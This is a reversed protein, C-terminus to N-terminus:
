KRGRTVNDINVKRRYGVKVIDELQLKFENNNERNMHWLMRSIMNSDENIVMEVSRYRQYEIDNSVFKGDLVDIISDLQQVTITRNYRANYIRQFEKLSISKQELLIKLLLLEDPRVGSLITKSLYEINLKEVETLQCHYGGKEMSELFNYYTKYEKIIVLPDVQNNNYFDYLRPVRGLRNKLSIYSEKIISRIGRIRDVSDFIKNKAVEDFHITSAGPMTRNGSIIYKRITDPNYSCDGSLAVPIMFNNNYNGIFDLIVVYEKGVAKRLGRGLQQIFVIPSQTPRLM